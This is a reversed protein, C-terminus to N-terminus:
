KQCLNVPVIKKAITGFSHKNRLHGKAIGSGMSEYEVNEFGKGSEEKEWFCLNNEMGLSTLNLLNRHSTVTFWHAEEKVRNMLVLFSVLVITETMGGTCAYPVLVSDLM